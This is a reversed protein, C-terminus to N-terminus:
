KEADSQDIAEAVAKALDRQSFPKGLRTFRLGTDVPMEGYGTALLFPIGPRHLRAQEALQAGTMGPMSFDAVILDITPNARFMALAESGSSAELVTHGLDELLTAMTTLIIADDDVTLITLPRLAAIPESVANGTTGATVRAVVAPLWIEATTGEGPVSALRFAGGLQAAIGDIMSLGLGTGKGIGKTTFFPEMARALTEADMGTGNDTVCLGVYRGAAATGIEGDKLVMERTQILIQGGGPMADRANVVLNLLAMELQNVDALVASIHLPFLTNVSWGSGLSRQLLDSMGIVMAPIEVRVLALEQRRAFALLRQTLTAGREAGNIANALLKRSLADEPLRRNLLDLSNLIVTLLNNFDHAVSGTFHGLADMKQSQFLAERATELQQQALNRETIDRTIKAFGVLNGADDHVADIVVSAQFETGDKRVRRGEAAYRGERYATALATAPMGSRRDEDNYFKSFHQGIIESPAYGKIHEAGTNWSSVNGDGDLMYIAYDTVSQVLYRFQEQSQRLADEALKRETLDRTIKAYGLIGGDAARIPDIVVHAWFRTGDKRVRWGEAEFRGDIDAINLAREPVGATRDDATYFRSFHHGIIEPASYGKFREAGANWNTVIGDPSLMYIAYDTIANVLLRYDDNPQPAHAGGPTHNM